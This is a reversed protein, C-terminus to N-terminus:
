NIGGDYNKAMILTTDPNRWNATSGCTICIMSGLVRQRMTGNITIPNADLMLKALSGDSYRIAPVKRM